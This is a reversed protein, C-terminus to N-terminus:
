NVYDVDPGGYGIFHSYFGSEDVDVSIDAFDKGRVEIKFNKCLLGFSGSSVAQWETSDFFRSSIQSAKNISTHTIEYIKIHM